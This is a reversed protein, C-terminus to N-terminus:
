FQTIKQLNPICPMPFPKQSETSFCLGHVTQPIWRFYL